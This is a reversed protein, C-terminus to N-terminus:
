ARELLDTLDIDDEGFSGRCYAEDLSSVTEIVLSIFMLIEPFSPFARRIEERLGSFWALRDIAKTTAFTLFIRDTREDFTGVLAYEDPRLGQKQAYSRVAESIKRTIPRLSTKIAM